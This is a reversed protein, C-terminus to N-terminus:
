RRSILGLIGVMSECMKLFMLGVSHPPDNVLLRWRKLYSRRIPTFQRRARGPHRLLYKKSNSSYYYKKMLHRALNVNGELHIILTKVHTQKMRLEELRGQIEYDEFGTIEEDYGGLREFAKRRFFRAAEFIIDGATTARDLSKVEAWFNEGKSIEPVIIADVDMLSAIKVCEEVVKPTLKMDSDIFLFYEGQANKAGYNRQSSRERGRLLVRAGYKKAIRRTEDASYNDVVIAEINSYTQAKVSKVCVELTSGSNYTPIIASVLPQKDKM